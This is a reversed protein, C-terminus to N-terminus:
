KFRTLNFQSIDYIPHSNLALNALTMGVLPAFKYGTGRWVTGVLINKFGPLSGIIFNDDSVLDYSCQDADKVDESRAGKLRPLCENVFDAICNIANQGTRELDPPNYYSIKVAGKTADFIPHGYVGIDLYAFVPLKDPMFNHANHNDPYYYKCEKPKDSSLPLVLKNSKISKLVDNTEIGATIVLKKARFDGSDTILQIKNNREEILETNTNSFIEVGLEQLNNVLFKAVAQLDFYGGKMDLYAQDADFQPFRKSLNVKDLKEPNYGLEKIVKFSRAGYTEVLKPTISKKAINLCGCKILLTNHSKQQLQNWLTYAENALRAYVPDLYDTRMSRTYSFSAAEKNLLDRKEILAVRNGITLSAYYASMLGMIGGGVIILDYETQKM